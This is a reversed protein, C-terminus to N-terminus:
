IGPKEVTKESIEHIEHFGGSHPRNGKRNRQNENQEIDQHHRMFILGHMDVPDIRHEKKVYSKGEKQEIDDIHDKIHHGHFEAPTRLVPFADPEELHLLAMIEGLLAVNRFGGSLAM